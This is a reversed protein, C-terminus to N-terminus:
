PQEEQQRPQSNRQSEVDSQFGAFGERLQQALMVFALRGGVGFMMRSLRVPIGGGLVYGLGTAAALTAYPRRTVQERVASELAALVGELETTFDGVERRVQQGKQQLRQVREKMIPTAM